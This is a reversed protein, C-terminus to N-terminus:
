DGLRERSFWQNSVTTHLTMYTVVHGSMAVYYEVDDDGNSATSRVCHRHRHTGTYIFTLIAEDSRNQQQWRTCQRRAAWGLGLMGALAPLVQVTGSGCSAEGRSSQSKNHYRSEKCNEPMQSKAASCSVMSNPGSDEAPLGEPPALGSASSDM